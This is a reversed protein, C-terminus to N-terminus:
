ESSVKRIALAVRPLVVAGTAGKVAKLAAWVARKLHSRGTAASTRYWLDIRDRGVETPQLLQASGGPLLRLIEREGGGRVGARLLSEWTADREIRPSLRRAAHLAAGDPLYNLLPLGTTHAEVPSWRYPTQELFLTGGARLARWLLELVVPRERPLLHEWVASLLVYDFSGIGAPLSEPAPSIQIDVNGLSYHDARAQALRAFAPVLEVGVIRTEPFMRGLIATSAGAGCGFDLLRRGALEDARVYSLIDNRLNAEVYGPDEDRKLEDCLYAPGKAALIEELLRDPYRTRWSAVEIFFAPDRPEVEVLRTEGDDDSIHVVAEPLEITRSVSM